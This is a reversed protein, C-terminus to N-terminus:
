SKDLENLGGEETPPVEKPWPEKDYAVDILREDMNTRCLERYLCGAYMGCAAPIQARPCLRQVPKSLPEMEILKKRTEVLEESLVIVEGFLSDLHDDIYEIVDRQFRPKKGTFIADILAGRCGDFYLKGVTSYMVMQCHPSYQEFYTGGLQSTTKHDMVYVGNMWKVVRDIRGFLVLEDTVPFTWGIESHL